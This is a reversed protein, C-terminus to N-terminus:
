NGALSGSSGSRVMQVKCGNAVLTALRAADWNTLRICGSSQAVGIGRANDTGHIGIHLREGSEAESLGMWLVGVPNNPGGPLVYRKKGRRGHKLMEDDWIFKPFRTTYGLKMPASRFHEPKRGLTVPFSAILHAESDFLSLQRESWDIEIYRNSHASDSATSETLKEILFPKAVNPVRVQNGAKIKAIDIEKNLRVLTQVDTHYMEAVLEALSEYNLAKAKQKDTLTRPIVGVFEKALDPVEIITVPESVADRIEPILAPLDRAGDRKVFLYSQLARYTNAGLIGDVKGPSFGHMELFVQVRMGDDASFAANKKKTEKGSGDTNQEGTTPIKLVRGIRIVDSRLGNATKIQQISVGYDRSLEWLSDGRV